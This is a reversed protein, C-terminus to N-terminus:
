PSLLKSVVANLSFNLRIWSRFAVVQGTAVTGGEDLLMFCGLQAYDRFRVVCIPESSKIMSVVM